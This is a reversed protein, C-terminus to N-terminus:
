CLLLLGVDSAATGNATGNKEHDQPLPPPPPPPMTCPISVELFGRDASLQGFRNAARQEVNRMQRDIIVDLLYDPLNYTIGDRLPYTPSTEAAAWGRTWAAAAAARRRRRRGAPTDEGM